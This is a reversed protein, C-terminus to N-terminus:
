KAAVCDVEVRSGLALGNAGIASRAPFRGEFFTSYVENFTAWESIDALMVTCKVLDKMAYGHAGLVTRINEMAQRAEPKIGGPVLKLSGPVVGIMGSLYLVNGARVAESFPLNTPLVKGSNLFEVAPAQGTTVSGAAAVLACAAAAVVINKM